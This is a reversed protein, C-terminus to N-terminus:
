CAPRPLSQSPLPQPPSRRPRPRPRPPAAESVISPPATIACPPPPGAPIGASLSLLLPGQSQCTTGGARPGTPPTQGNIVLTTHPVPAATALPAPPAEEQDHRAVSAARRGNRYHLREQLVTGVVDRYMCRM